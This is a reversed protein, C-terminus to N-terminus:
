SRKSIIYNEFILFELESTLLFEKADELTELIPQKNINLSTHIVISEGSIRKLERLVEQLRPFIKDVTQIRITYDAHMVELLDNRRSEKVVPAFSMYPSYLGEAEEFYNRQDEELVSCGYPRFRERMKVKDNLYDRIGPIFPSCLISRHGLARPGCESAGEYWAIIKHKSILQAVRYPGYAELHYDKFATAVEQDQYDRKLGLFPNEPNLIVPLQHHKKYYSAIAAGLGIGEDNTWAPVWIFDFLKSRRLQENFICNLACGGLYVLHNHDKYTKRLRKFLEFKYREFYLQTSGAIRIYEDMKDKELSDFYSKSSQENFATKTLIDFLEDDPIPEGKFHGALGMVKGSYNWDGFIVQSAATFYSAPSYHKGKGRLMHVPTFIKELAQIKGDAYAYVSITEFVIEPDEQQFPFIAHKSESNRSGCGDSIVILHKKKPDLEILVSFLHAEHHLINQATENSRGFRPDILISQTFKNKIKAIYDWTSSLDTFFTSFAVAEAQLESLDFSKQLENIALYPYFGAQKVRSLREEELVKVKLENKDSYLVGVSSDHHGLNIGVHLAKPKM